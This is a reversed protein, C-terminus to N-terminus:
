IKTYKLNMYKTLRIIEDVDEQAVVKRKNLLANAKALAQLHKLSRFNKDVLKNFQKNYKAESKIDIGAGIIKEQRYQIYEQNNISEMIKEITEDTYDYSVVLMRQFFGFSQWIEKHQGLSAKTTATVLGIIRGSFDHEQNFLKIKGVGEELLANLLSIFNDSTSRKKQTIKIFDPIIVHKLFPNEKMSLLVGSYSLDTYFSATRMKFSNILQTKGNGSKGVVLLSVPKENKIIGTLLTLKVLKKLDQMNIM